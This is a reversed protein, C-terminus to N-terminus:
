IEAATSLQSTAQHQHLTAFEQASLSVPCFAARRRAETLEVRLQAVVLTPLRERYLPLTWENVVDALIVEIGIGLFRQAIDCANEAGVHQQQRGQAGQWPAAHGAVVLHRIDDVDIVAALPRDAALRHATVSKGAAPGGTLLLPPLM